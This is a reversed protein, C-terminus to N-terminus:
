VRPFESSIASSRDEEDRPFVYVVSSVRHVVFKKRECCFLSEREKRRGMAGAM